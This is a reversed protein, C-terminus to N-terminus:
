RVVAKITDAGVGAASPLGAWARMEDMWQETTPGYIGDPTDAGAIWQVAQVQASIAGQGFWGRALLDARLTDAGYWDGASLGLALRRSSVARKTAPGYAGDVKAGVLAQIVRICSELSLNWPRPTRVKSASTVSSLESATSRTLYAVFAAHPFRPGPDTHTTGGLGATIDSHYTWGSRKGAKLDSASLYTLPIGWRGAIERALDAARKWTATHNADTWDDTTYGAMEIGISNKNGPNGCHAAGRNEPVSHTTTTPDVTYHAVGGPTSGSQGAFYKAVDLAKGPVCQAEVCHLVLLTPTQAGSYIKSAVALVTIPMEAVTPEKSPACAAPAALIPEVLATVGWRGDLDRLKASYNPDTAYQRPPTTLWTALADADAPPDLYRTMGSRGTIYDIHARVSDELSAYRNFDTTSDYVIEGQVYEPNRSLRYTGIMWVDRNVEAGSRIGAKQGFYNCASRANESTGAGSEQIVQRVTTLTLARVLEPALGLSRCYDRSAIATRRMVDLQATTPM